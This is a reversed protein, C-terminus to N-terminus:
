HCGQWVCSWLVVLGGDADGEDELTEGLVTLVCLSRKDYAEIAKLTDSLGSEDCCQAGGQLRWWM